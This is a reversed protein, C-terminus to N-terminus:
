WHESTPVGRLIEDIKARTARTTGEPLADIPFFRAEAIELNPWKAPLVHFEDVVYCVVHDRGNGIRNLFLGHMIPTGQIEIGAEEVLERALATLATEGREIGGGPLYWGPVYTHRVLLVQDAGMGGMKDRRDVVLGRVGLRQPHLVAKARDTLWVLWGFSLGTGM